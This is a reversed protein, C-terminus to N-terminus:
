PLLWGAACDAGTSGAGCALTSTGLEDNPSSGADDDTALASGDAFGAGAAVGAGVVATGSAGGGGVFNESASACPLASAALPSWARATSSNSAAILSSLVRASGWM